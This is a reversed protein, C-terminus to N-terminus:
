NDDNFITIRYLCDDSLARLVLNLPISDVKTPKSPTNEQKSGMNPDAEPIKKKEKEKEQELKVAQTM